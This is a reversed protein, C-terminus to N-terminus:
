ARGHQRGCRGRWAGPWWGSRRRFARRWLGPWQLTFSGSHVVIVAFKECGVAQGALQRVAVPRLDNKGAAGIHSFGAEDILQAVAAFQGADASGWAFRGGDVKIFYILGVKHVQGAVAVGLDGVGLAFAPVLQDIGIELVVAADAQQHLQQVAAVSGTGVVHLHQLIQM